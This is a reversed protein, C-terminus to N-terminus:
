VGVDSGFWEVSGYVMNCYIYIYVVSSMCSYCKDHTLKMEGGFTTTVNDKKHISHSLVCVSEDSSVREFRYQCVLAVRTGM